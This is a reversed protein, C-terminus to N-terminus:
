TLNVEIRDSLLKDIRGFGIRELQILDGVQFRRASKEIFGKEIKISDPNLEGKNYMQGPINMVLEKCFNVPVWQIKEHSISSSDAITAIVKKQDGNAVQVEQVVVNFLDKLRVIKGPKLLPSDSRSVYFNNEYQIERSGLEPKKPHFSLTVEGGPSDKVLMEVPDIVAFCRKAIGDVIKRNLALLISMDLESQGTSLQMDLALQKITEPIIGRRQLGSLTSLRIDDWGEIVKKEILERIQRKQVPVDILRLRSFHVFRPSILGLEDRIFNQLAVKQVFEESRLVHTIGLEGDEIAVAFDYLPWVRYDDGQLCHKAEIVRMISPDRLSANTHVMNGKLRLTAEGERGNERMQEWGELTEEISRNRHECERGAHRHERIVDVPCSCIYAKGKEILKRANRYYMPLRSSEIIEEDWNIGMYQYDKRISDYYKLKVKRPNTDEFRLILKGNYRKAYYHNIFGAYGHGIHLYGSPEPPLRTCVQGDIAGELPPLETRKEKIKQEKKFFEPYKERCTKEIFLPDLNNVWAVRRAVIKTIDKAQSKLEPHDSIIAGMVSGTKSKGHKLANKYVYKDVLEELEM